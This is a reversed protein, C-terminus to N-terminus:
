LAYFMRHLRNCPFDHNTLGMAGFLRLCEALFRTLFGFAHKGLGAGARAAMDHMALGNKFRFKGAQRLLLSGTSAFM